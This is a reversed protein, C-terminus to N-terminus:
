SSQNIHSLLIVDNLSRSGGVQLQPDRYRSVVELPHFINNHLEASYHNIRMSGVSQEYLYQRSPEFLCWISM